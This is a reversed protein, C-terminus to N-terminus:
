VERDSAFYRMVPKRGTAAHLSYIVGAQNLIAHLTGEPMDPLRARALRELLGDTEGIRSLAHFLANTVRPKRAKLGVPTKAPGFDEFADSGVVRHIQRATVRSGSDAFFEFFLYGIWIDPVVKRRNPCANL